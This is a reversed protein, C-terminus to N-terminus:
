APAGSELANRYPIIKADLEDWEADARSGPVVGVGSFVRLSRESVQAARINVFFESWEPTIVGFPAGFFGRDFPENQRLWTLARAKPFGGLAATPHLLSLLEPASAAANRGRIETRLHMLTKYSFIRTDGSEPTIGTSRLKELVDEVVIRHEERDKPSQLLDQELRRNETEDAGRRRTGALAETWLQDGELRFLREPSASIFSSGEDWAFLALYLDQDIVRLLSLPDIADRAEFHALRGLVLKRLDGDFAKLAKSHYDNWGEFDPVTATASATASTAPNETQRLGHLNTEREILYTRTNQRVLERRPLIARKERGYFDQACYFHHDVGLPLEDWGQIQSRPLVNGVGAAEWGRERLRLYVRAGAAEQSALWNLPDTTEIEKISVRISQM